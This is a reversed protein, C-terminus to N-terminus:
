HHEGGEREKSPSPLPMGGGDEAEEGADMTKIGIGPAMGGDQGEEGVAMTTVPKNEKKGMASRREARRKLEDDVAGTHSQLLERLQRTATAPNEAATIATVVAIHRAGAAALEPIHEAKIGGMVTFPVEALRSMQRLGQLGLFQPVGQKTQTAYIPGINVTSAGDRQAQQLEEVNHTSAGILLNPALKRAEAIPFDQQGLHVGDAEVALAIDLHDNVILLVGAQSTKQRFAQALQFLERRNLGKERLQVIRAGGAIIADLVQLSSRGRSHEQGTVPYIDVQEFLSLRQALINTM